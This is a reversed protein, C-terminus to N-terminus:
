GLAAAFLFDAMAFLILSMLLPLNTMVMLFVLSCIAASFALAAAATRSFCFASCAFFCASFATALASAALVLPLSSLFFSSLFTSFGFSTLSVLGLSSFGALASFAGLGSFGALSGLFFYDSQNTLIAFCGKGYHCPTNKNSQVQKCVFLVVRIRYNKKHM